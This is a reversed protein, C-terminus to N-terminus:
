CSGVDSCILILVEETFGREIGQITHSEVVGDVTCKCAEKAHITVELHCVINVDIKNRRPVLHEHVIIKEIRPKAIHIGTM